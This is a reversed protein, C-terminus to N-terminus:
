VLRRALDGVDRRLRAGVERPGVASADFPLRAIDWKEGQPAGLTQEVEAHTLLATEACSLRYSVTLEACVRALSRWQRELIPYAGPDFPERVAGKMGAVAVGVSHSNVGRTHRAYDAREDVKRANAFITHVGRHVAGDGDIVFHYHELDEAAAQHGGGTWHAIIRKLSGPEVPPTWAPQLARDRAWASRDDGRDPMRRACAGLASAALGLAFVRRSPAAAANWRHRIMAICGRGERGGGRVFGRPRGMAGGPESARAAYRIVNASTAEEAVVILIANIPGPVTPAAHDLAAARAM